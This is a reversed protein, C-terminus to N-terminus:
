VRDDVVLDLHSCMVRDYRFHVGIQILDEETCSALDSGTVGLARFRSAYRSLGLNRILRVVADRGFDEIKDDADDSGAVAHPM